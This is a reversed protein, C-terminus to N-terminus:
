AQVGFATEDVAALQESTLVTPVAQAPASKLRSELNRVKLRLASIEGDLTFAKLRLSAARTNNAVTSRGPECALARYVDAQALYGNKEAVLEALDRHADQLQLEISARAGLSATNM